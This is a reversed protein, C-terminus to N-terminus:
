KNDSSSEEELIEYDEDVATRKLVMLETSSLNELDAAPVKIGRMVNAMVVVFPTMEARREYIANWESLNHCAITNKQFECDILEVIQSCPLKSIDIDMRLETKFPKQLQARLTAIYVAASQTIVEYEDANKLAGELSKYLVSSEFSKRKLDYFRDVIVKSIEKIKDQYNKLLYILIYACTKDQISIDRFGSIARQFPIDYSKKLYAAFNMMYPSMKETEIIPKFLDLVTKNYELNDEINYVSGFFQIMVDPNSKCSKTVVHAFLERQTTDTVARYYFHELICVKGDISSKKFLENIREEVIEQSRFYSKILTKLSSMPMPKAFLDDLSAKPDHKMMPELHTVIHIAMPGMVQSCLMDGLIDLMQHPAIKKLAINLAFTLNKLQDGLM